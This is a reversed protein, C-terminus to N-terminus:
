RGRSLREILPTPLGAASMKAQTERYDYEVRHLSMRGAAQDILAYAARPDGDRPQGVSGPNAVFRSGDLLAETQTAHSRPHTTKDDERYLFPLHSHGVLGYPTMQLALHAEADSGSILYEWVPEILSGHVLTFDGRTLTRPLATLWDVDDPRLQTATWRAAAAAYPNFDDLPIAGAAGLDHNGAVCLVDLSQLLEICAVPDPGYGVVDGLCWVENIEGQQRADEIVANLAELNSHVDAVVLVPM